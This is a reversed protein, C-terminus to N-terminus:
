LMFDNEIIYLHNTQSIKLELKPKWYKKSTQICIRWKKKWNIERQNISEMKYKKKRRLWKIKLNNASLLKIM